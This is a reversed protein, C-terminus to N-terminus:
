LLPVDRIVQPQPQPTNAVLLKRLWTSEASLFCVFGGWGGWGFNGALLRCTLRPVRPDATPCRNAYYPPSTTAFDLDVLFPFRSVTFHGPVQVSRDVRLAPTSIGPCRRLGLNAPM